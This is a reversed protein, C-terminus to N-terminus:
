SLVKTYCALRSLFRASLHGPGTETTHWDLGVVWGVISRNIYEYVFVSCALFLGHPPRTGGWAGWWVWGLLSFCLISVRLM